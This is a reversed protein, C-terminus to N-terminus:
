KIPKPIESHTETQYLLIQEIFRKRESDPTTLVGRNAAQQQIIDDREQLLQIRREASLTFNTSIADKFFPNPKPASTVSIKKSLLIDTSLVSNIQGRISALNSTVSPLTSLLVSLAPVLPAFVGLSGAVASQTSAYTLVSTNLTDVTAILTNLLTVLQNGLVAQETANNGLKVKSANIVINKNSDLTISNDASLSIGDKGFISVEKAAANISIRGSSALIAPVSGWNDQKWTNIKETTAASNTNTNPAFQIEQGATLSIISDDKNFDETTFDGIRSTDTGQRTNRIILIPDTSTGNWKPIKSFLSTKTQTSSFRISNGYRGELITDGVYPQLSKVLSNETFNNDILVQQTDHQVVNGTQSQDYNSSNDRTSSKTPRKSITPLSNHNLNSSVGIIDIYYNDTDTKVGSTYASPGKILLVVEHVIPIRRSSINIPKAVLVTLSNEDTSSSRKDLVKVNITNVLNTNEDSYNVSLVEAPVLELEGYATRFKTLM